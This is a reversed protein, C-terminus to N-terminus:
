RNANAAEAKIRELMRNQNEITHEMLLITGAVNGQDILAQAQEYSEVVAAVYAAFSVSLQESKMTM